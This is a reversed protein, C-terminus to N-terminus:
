NPPICWIEANTGTPDLMWDPVNRTGYGLEPVGNAKRIPLWGFVTAAEELIEQKSPSGLIQLDKTFTQNNALIKRDFLVKTLAKRKRARHNPLTSPHAHNIWIDLVTILDTVLGGRRNRMRLTFGVFPRETATCDNLRVQTSMFRESISIGQDIRINFKDAATKTVIEGTETDLWETPSLYTVVPRVYSRSSNFPNTWGASKLYTKPLAKFIGKTAIYRAYKIHKSSHAGKALEGLYNFRQISSTLETLSKAYRIPYEAQHKRIDEDTYIREIFLHPYLQYDPDISRSVAEKIKAELNVTV